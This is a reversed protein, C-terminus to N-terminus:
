QSRGGDQERSVGPASRRSAGHEMVTDMTM